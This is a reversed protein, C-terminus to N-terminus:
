LITFLFWKKEDSTDMSYSFHLMYTKWLHDSVRLDLCTWSQPFDRKLPCHAQWFPSYKEYLKQFRGAESYDVQSISRNEKFLLDADLGSWICPCLFCRFELFQFGDLCRCICQHGQFSISRSSCPLSEHLFLASQCSCLLPWPRLCLCHWIEQLFHSCNKFSTKKVLLSRQM